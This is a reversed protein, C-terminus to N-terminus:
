RDRERERDRGERKEEWGWVSVHVSIYVCAHMCVHTCAVELVMESPSISNLNRPKMTYSEVSLVKSNKIQLCLHYSQEVQAMRLLVTEGERQRERV